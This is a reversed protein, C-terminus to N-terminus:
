TCFFYNIKRKVELIDIKQKGNQTMWHISQGRKLGLLASGIPAFVSIGDPYKNMDFPLCLTKTFCKESKFIKFTVQSGISIVDKPMDKTKVVNARALEDELADYMEEPLDVEELQKEIERLDEYSITIDPKSQM